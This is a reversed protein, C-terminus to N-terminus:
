EEGLPLLRQQPAREERREGHLGHLGNVNGFGNRPHCLVRAAMIRFIRVDGRGLWEFVDRAQRRMCEAVNAHRGDASVFEVSHNVRHHAGAAAFGRSRGIVRCDNNVWGIVWCDNNFVRPRM